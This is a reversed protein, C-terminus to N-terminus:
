GGPAQMEGTSASNMSAALLATWHVNIKSLRMNTFFETDPQVLQVGRRLRLGSDKLPVSSKRSNCTRCCAVCNRFSTQGGLCRPVVHDITSASAGCYACRHKDRELVLRRAFPAPKRTACSIASSGLVIAEPVRIHLNPSAIFAPAEDRRECARSSRLPPRASVAWESTSTHTSMDSLNLWMARCSDLPPPHDSQAQIPRGCSLLLSLAQRATILNIPVWRRDLVLVQRQLLAAQSM